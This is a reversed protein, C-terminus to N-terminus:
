EVATVTFGAQRLQQILGTKEPLHAAGVAAFIAHQPMKQILQQAMMHNRKDLIRYRVQQWLTPSMSKATMKENEAMIAAVDRKLYLKILKETDAEKEAQSRKLVPRLMALQAEVPLDDLMSLQSDMTELGYVAKGLEEAKYRLLTDLVFPNPPKPLDLMIALLWPKIRNAADRPILYRDSIEAVKDMEKPTFHKDLAWNDKFINPPQKPDAVVEMYFADVSTLAQLLKPSFETVRNDDSHITGFVYGVTGNAAQVRWLLGKEAAQPAISFLLLWLCFSNIVFFNLTQWIRARKMTNGIPRAVKDPHPKCLM